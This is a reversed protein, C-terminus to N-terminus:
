AIRSFAFSTRDGAEKENRSQNVRWHLTRFTPWKEKQIANCGLLNTFLAWTGRWRQLTMYSNNLTDHKQAYLFPQQHQCVKPQSKHEARENWRLVIIRLETRMYFPVLFKWCINFTIIRLLFFYSFHFKHKYVCCTTLIEMKQTTICHLEPFLWGVNRYHLGNKM